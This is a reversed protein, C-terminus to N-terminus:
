SELIRWTGQSSIGNRMLYAQFVLAIHIHIGQQIISHHFVLLRELNGLVYAIKENLIARSFAMTASLKLMNTSMGTDLVNTIRDSNNIKVRFVM